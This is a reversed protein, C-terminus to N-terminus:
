LIVLKEFESERILNLDRSLVKIKYLYLGKALSSGYDDQANWHIDNVRFGSGFVNKEITKVLKGSVTYINIYVELDSGVLDHEFQFSTSTTFPNPYNYVRRLSEDGDNIVVFELREETSNNSVDWAKVSISHKGPELDSLPFRIKGSTYDDTNAEYFKNLIFSNKPDDDLIAVVDHGISTGSVNIGLDDSLNVLLTPNSNTSGGFVFNEDNMFLQMTPGIDDTIGNPDSGGILIGKFVGAADQVDGDYAYYSIRGNGVTYNIDKPVVFTFSFEGNIVSASGKFLINRYVEFSEKRSADDNRLTEITSEKDYVTPFINGNFDSVINGAADTIIGSITVKELANLTDITSTSNGNVQTTVVNYKPLAIRQSPDGILSFKRDNLYNNSDANKNKADTIIDGLTQAQGNVKLFIIDFVAKALRENDNAYVARVTTLLAVVGGKEKQISVEGASIIAPDDYGTFSCTATVLIPLEDANNWTEIDSIKLVREQAWGKPGGHGLYNMVLTGNQIASNITESAAPYRDGGPTSEQIYTDFYIKNQNYNPFEVEVDEALNDAQRVHLNTDEDDAVFAINLRWDGFSKKNTDYNIIKDVVANAMESTTVPLRGVAVDIAGRLNGGEGDSLLVFYDDSPFGNIPDLSEDTEYAPIFNHDAINPTINRYDYTADGFLLLYNFKSDRISLMRAFDRIATPDQKGGSFENFIKKIDVTEVIYGSFNSRHKALRNAADLFDEHYLIVLDARDMAHINQNPIQFAEQEPSLFNGNKVMLFTKLEQNVDYLLNGNSPSIIKTNGLDSIDWYEFGSNPVQFGASTYNLSEKDSIRLQTYDSTIKKRYELQIYDLWAEDKSSSKVYEVTITSNSNLTITEDIVVEKAYDAEIDNLNTGLVSKSFTQGDVSLKTTTSNDGRAALRMKIRGNGSQSLNSIDFQNQYSKSTEIAFYDGFWDKGTGETSGYAGLLNTRDEEYRQLYDFENTIYDSNSLSNETKVRKGNSGDIKIFIYNNVDYINKDYDHTQNSVDFNWRDAGEAFFRIIDDENIKGDGGDNIFLPIELFDDTREEDIAKPLRGGKNSFIQIASSSVSGNELGLVSSFFNGTIEYIGEKTVPVKFITGSSLVSTYTNDGRFSTQPSTPTFTVTLRFEELKEYGSNTKRIPTISINGQFINKAQTIEYNSTFDTNLGNRSEEQTISISSTKTPTITIQLQGKSPVPLHHLYRPVEPTKSDFAADQFTQITLRETEDLINDFSKEFWNLSVISTYKEQANVNIAATILLLTYLITKNM